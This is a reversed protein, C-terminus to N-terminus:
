RTRPHHRSSASAPKAGSAPCSAARGRSWGGSAPTVFRWSTTRTKSTRGRCVSWECTTATRPSPLDYTVGAVLGPPTYLDCPRRPQAPTVCSPMVSRVTSNEFFSAEALSRQASRTKKASSLSALLCIAFTESDAFSEYEAIAIPLDTLFRCCNPLDKFVHFARERPAPQPPIPAPPSPTTRHSQSRSM